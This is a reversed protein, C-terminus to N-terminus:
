IHILSLGHLILRQIGLTVAEQWDKVQSVIQINALQISEEKVKDVGKKYSM